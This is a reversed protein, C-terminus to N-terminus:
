AVGLADVTERLAQALPTARLGFRRAVKDHDVILPREFQYLMEVHERMEPKFVGMTRLLLRGATRVKLPMGRGAAVLELLQRPSQTPSNPTHWVEGYATDQQALALMCRAHDPVYTMSHPLDPNGLLYAPRGALVERMVGSGVSSNEVGPGFFTAARVICTRLSGQGQLAMLRNAAEARVRGKVTKAFYPTSELLPHDQVGYAYLNDGYVIDVQRGQVARCIGDIMQPFEQPWRGYPPAACLYLRASTGLHRSLQDPQSLDCALAAHADVLGGSRNLLVVARGQARLLGALTRGLVGAGIVVENITNTM